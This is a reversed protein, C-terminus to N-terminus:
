SALLFRVELDSIEDEWEESVRRGALRKSWIWRSTAEREAATFRSWVEALDGADWLLHQMEVVELRLYAMAWDTQRGPLTVLGLDLEVLVQGESQPTVRVKGPYKRWDVDLIDAGERGWYFPFFIGFSSGRVGCMSPGDAMSVAFGRRRWYSEAIEAAHADWAPVSIQRSLNM